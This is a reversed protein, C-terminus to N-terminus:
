RGGHLTGGGRIRRNLNAAPVLFLCFDVVLYRDETNFFIYQM